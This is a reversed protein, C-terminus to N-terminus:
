SVKVILLVASTFFYELSGHTNKLHYFTNSCIVL